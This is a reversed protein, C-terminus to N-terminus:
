MDRDSEDDPDYDDASRVIVRAVELCYEEALAKGEELRIDSLREKWEPKAELLAAEARFVAPVIYKAWREVAERNTMKVKEM